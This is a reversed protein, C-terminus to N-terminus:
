KKFCKKGWSSFINKQGSFHALKWMYMFVTLYFFKLLKMKQLVFEKTKNKEVATLVSEPFVDHYFQIKWLEATMFVPSVNTKLLFFCLIFEWSIEKLLFFFIWRHFCFFFNRGGFLLKENKKLWSSFIYIHSVFSQFHKKLLCFFFFFNLFTMQSVLHNIKRRIFIKKKSNWM